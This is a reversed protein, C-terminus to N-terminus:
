QGVAEYRRLGRQWVWFLIIFLAVLWVLAFIIGFILDQRGLAGQYIKIPFYVTYKFPLFISLNRLFGPLLDIPLLEGGLFGITLGISTSFLRIDTVYFALCALLLNFFFNTLLAIPLFFLFILFNALSPVQFFSSFFIFFFAVLSFRLLMEFFRNALFFCFCWKLYHIPKVLYASLVGDRIEDGVLRAVNGRTAFHIIRVMMLYTIMSALTYGGFSDVQKFIASWIFFLVFFSILGLAMHAFFEVRYEMQSQWMVKFVAWYKKM